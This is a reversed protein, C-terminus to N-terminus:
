RRDVRCEITREYALDIWIYKFNHVRESCHLRFCGRSGCLMGQARRLSAFANLNM